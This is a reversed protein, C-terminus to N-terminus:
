TYRRLGQPPRIWLAALSHVDNVKEVTHSTM